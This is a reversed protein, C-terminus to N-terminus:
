VERERLDRMGEDHPHRGSELVRPVEVHHELKDNTRGVGVKFGSGLGFGLGDDVM